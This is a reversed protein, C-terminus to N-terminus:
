SFAERIKGAGWTFPKESKYIWTKVEAADDKQYIESVDTSARLLDYITKEIERAESRQNKRAIKLTEGLLWSWRFGDHYRRLGVLKTTWSVESDPQLPLPVGWGRSRLEQWVDENDLPGCLSPDELIWLLAETSQAKWKGDALFKQFVKKAFDSPLWSPTKGSAKFYKLLLVHFYFQPGERRLSDMWDSFPPQHFLGERLFSKYFEIGKDLQPQAKKYLEPSTTRIDEFALALLVNSDFAVTKHEGLYEAKLREETYLFKKSKLLSPCFIATVVRLQPPIVDLGRPFLGDERQFRLFASLQFQVTELEGAKLLGPVAHCFDRAWLTGFQNAGAPMFNGGLVSIKNNTFTKGCISIIQNEM